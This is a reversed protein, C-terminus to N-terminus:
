TTQTDFYLDVSSSWSYGNALNTSTPLSGINLFTLDQGTGTRLLTNNTVVYASGSGLTYNTGIAGDARNFNDSFNTLLQGHSATVLLALAFLSSSTRKM